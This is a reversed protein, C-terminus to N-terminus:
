GKGEGRARALDRETYLEPRVRAAHERAVQDLRKNANQLQQVSADILCRRLARGEATANDM